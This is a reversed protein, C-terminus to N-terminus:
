GPATAASGSPSRAPRGTGPDRVVQPRHQPEAEVRPLRQVVPEERDSDVVRGNRWVRVEVVLEGGSGKTVFRLHPTDRSVCLLPSRVGEYDDLKLSRTGGGLLFPNVGTVLSGRDGWSGWTLSEFDGDPALYYDANDGFPAFVRSTPGYECDAASAASPAAAFAAVVLGGSTLLRKMRSLKRPM